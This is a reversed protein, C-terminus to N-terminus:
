NYAFFPRNIISRFPIFFYMFSKKVPNNIGYFSIFIVALGYLLCGKFTIFSWFPPLKKSKFFPKKYYEQHQRAFAIFREVAARTSPLGEM